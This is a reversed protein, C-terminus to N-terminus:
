SPHERGRTKFRYLSSIFVYNPSQMHCLTRLLSSSHCASTLHFSAGSTAKQQQLLVCLFPKGKSMTEAQLELDSIEMAKPGHHPLSKTLTNALAFSVSVLFPLPSHKSGLMGKFTGWHDLQEGPCWRRLTRSSGLLVM